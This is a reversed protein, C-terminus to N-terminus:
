SPASGAPCYMTSTIALVFPFDSSQNEIGSFTVEDWCIAFNVRSLCNTLGPSSTVTTINVAGGVTNKGFLTGQPGRLVEMQQVDVVDILTGVSRPLFVGDIYIGVGPDFAIASSQPTGGGRIVIDAAQGDSPAAIRLNPVLQQVEDLRTVGIERLEAAGVVSVSVPTDQLFEARKRARVVIEEVPRDRRPTAADQAPAATTWAVTAGVLALRIWCGAEWKGRQHTIM